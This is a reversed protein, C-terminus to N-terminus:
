ARPEGLAGVSWAQSQRRRDGRLPSGRASGRFAARLCLRYPGGTSAGVLIVPLWHGARKECNLVGDCLRRARGSSRFRATSRSLSSRDTRGVRRARRHNHPAYEDCAFPTEIRSELVSTLPFPQCNSTTESPALDLSHRTDTRGALAPKEAVRIKARDGCAGPRQYTLDAM